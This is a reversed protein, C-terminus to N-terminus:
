RTASSSRGPASATRGPWGCTSATSCTSCRRARRSPSRRSATLSLALVPLVLSRLWESPSDAFTVYGTAPLWRLKVAFWSILLAALWFSPVAFGVLALADVTRGAAGGRVASFVGIAVGVVVSVLLAGIM